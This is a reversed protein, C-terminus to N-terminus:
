IFMELFIKTAIGMSMFKVISAKTKTEDQQIDEM